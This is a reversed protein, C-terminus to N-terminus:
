WFRLGVAPPECREVHDRQLTLRAIDAKWCEDFVSCYCVNLSMAPSIRARDFRDRVTQNDPSANLGFLSKQDGARLVEVAGIDFHEPDPKYGCCAKLFDSANRYATGKWKLEITEIKAPGM